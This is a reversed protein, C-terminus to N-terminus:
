PASQWDQSARPGSECYPETEVVLSYRSGTHVGRPAVKELGHERLEAAQQITHLSVPARLRPRM